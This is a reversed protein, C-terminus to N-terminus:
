KAARGLLYTLFGLTFNLFQEESVINFLIAVLFIIWVIVVLVQELLPMPVWGPLAGKRSKSVGYSVGTGFLLGVVASAVVFFTDTTVVAVITLVLFAVLFGVGIVANWFKPNPAM